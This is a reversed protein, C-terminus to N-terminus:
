AALQRRWHPTFGEIEFVQQYEPNDFGLDSHENPTTEDRDGPRLRLFRIKLM